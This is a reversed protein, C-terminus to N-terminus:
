APAAERSYIIAGSERETRNRIAGALTPRDAYIVALTKARTLGTYLIETTMLSATVAGPLVLFVSGYESGQSKHVTIAYSLDHPPLTEVSCLRIGDSRDFVGYYRGDASLLIIGTDGNYLGRDYDNRTIIVPAGSFLTGAGTVDLISALSAQLYENIGSAGSLGARLPTLIRWDDLSSIIRKLMNDPDNRVAFLDTGSVSRIMEKLTMGDGIKTEYQRATWSALIGRLEPIFPAGSRGPEIRWVGHDPLGAHPDLEPIEDVVSIDQAIIKKAVTTISAVSRYSERLIVVRDELPSPVRLAGTKGAPPPGPPEVGPMLASLASLAAASYTAALDDPILDALVAGAEVSPLQNRDGLLVLCATPDVAELLSGLLIIDIMSAEDIVVLDAPVPNYRNHFFGGRSSGYGLLRHITTGQVTAIGSDFADPGSITAIGGRLSDTLRQAARGTPAAIRIRQPSVGMRAMVRLLTLVIFTKGTGPGGSILVFNNLVPLLVALTQERNLLAPTGNIMAPKERLVASMAAALAEPDKRPGPSRALILSLSEAMAREASHYKQFYLARGRPHDVLILPKYAERPDVAARSTGAPMTYVLDSHREPIGIVERIRRDADPGAVPELKKRLSVPELALCVSGESLSIFMALLLLHLSIDGSGSYRVLDRITLYDVARLELTQVAAGYISKLEPPDSDSVVSLDYLLQLSVDNM